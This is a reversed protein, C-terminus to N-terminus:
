LFHNNKLKYKLIYTCLYHNDGFKRCKAVFIKGVVRIFVVLRCVAM